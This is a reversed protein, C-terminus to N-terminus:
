LIQFNLIADTIRAFYKVGGLGARAFIKLITQFFAVFVGTFETPRATVSRCSPIPTRSIRYSAFLNVFFSHTKRDTHREHRNPAVARACCSFFALQALESFDIM